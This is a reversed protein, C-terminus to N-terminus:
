MCVWEFLDEGVLKSGAIFYLTKKKNQKNKHM